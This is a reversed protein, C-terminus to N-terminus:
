STPEGNKGSGHTYGWLAALAACVASDNGPHTYAFWMTAVIGLISAVSPM